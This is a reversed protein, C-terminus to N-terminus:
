NERNQRNVAGGARQRITEPFAIGGIINHLM